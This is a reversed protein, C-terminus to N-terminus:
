PVWEGAADFGEDDAFQAPTEGDGHTTAPKPGRARNRREWARCIKAEFADVEHWPKGKNNLRPSEKAREQDAKWDLFGAQVRLWDPDAESYRLGVQSSGAWRKPDKEIRRDTWSQADLFGDTLENAAVSAPESAAGNGRGMAKVMSSALAKLVRFEEESFEQSV